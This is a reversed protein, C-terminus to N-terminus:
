PAVYYHVNVIVGTSASDLRGALLRNATLKWPMDYKVIAGGGASALRARFGKGGTATDGSEFVSITNAVGVNSPFLMTIHISQGAGPAAIMTAVTTATLRFYRPGHGTTGTSRPTAPHYPMTVQRGQLDVWIYSSDGTAVATPETVRARGAVLVPRAGSALSDHAVVGHVNVNGSITIPNTIDTITGSITIPEAITVTGSVKVALATGTAKVSVPGGSVKVTGSVTIPEVITVSGSVKVPLATGTARIFTIGQSSTRIVGVQGSATLGGTGFYGGIPIIESTGKTFAARDARMGSVSVSGSITIPEAISVTGSVKVALATGTPAVKVTGSVTIPEALNVNGSVRVINQKMGGSTTSLGVLLIRGSTMRIVGADGIGVQDPTGTVSAYYAGMPVIDDTAPTFPADDGHTVGSGSIGTVLLVRGSTMRIVGIDGAAGVSDAGFRAGIAVVRSSELTFTAEDVFEAGINVATAGAPSIGTVLLVRGSTMRVVGVDGAAGVVDAGFRAGLAVVRGSGLTFTDEDVFESRLGVIGSVTIPEALNVNGSVKVALATGTAKVSIPGGSVKVTGSVTIPEVITVSGSVRVAHATGSAKIIIIGQSTTRIAGM